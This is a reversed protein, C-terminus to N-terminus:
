GEYPIQFIRSFWWYKKWTPFPPRKRHLRKNQKWILVGRGSLLKPLLAQALRCKPLRRQRRRWQCLYSSGSLHLLFFYAKRLFNGGASESSTFFNCPCDKGKGFTGGIEGCLNYCQRRIKIFLACFSWDRFYWFACEPISGNQLM